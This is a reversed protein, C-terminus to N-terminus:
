RYRSERYLLHSARRAAFEDVDALWPGAIEVPSEGAMLALRLRDTGALLDFPYRGHNQRFAFQNPHRDIVTAILHLSVDIPKMEDRNRVHVQVGHCPEDAHKSFVPTFHVARFRVGPLGSHNLTDAWWDADIWPAGLWEFPKTTGRGESLDTGEILCVGPYLTATQLTPMNPSPPIWSLGTQDYWMSRGWGQMPVVQLNLDLDLEAKFLRALEGVTMGHRIPLPHPGVFSQFAPQLLNGEVRDGRTPNPRDLVVFDIGSEAAGEMALLLTSIFTYFRVGVDQIDYVLVDIKDLMESTPKRTEGYLSYIPISQQKGTASPIHIGNQASGWIGHEPSFLAALQIKPHGAFLALNSRLQEDVGTQNTILGVPRGEVLASQENLLVSLGVKM